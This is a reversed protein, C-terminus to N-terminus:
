RRMRAFTPSMQKSRFSPVGDPGKAGIISEKGILVSQRV